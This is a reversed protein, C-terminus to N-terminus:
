LLRPNGYSTNKNKASRIAKRAARKAEKERKKASGVLRSKSIRRKNPNFKPAPKSTTTKVEPCVWVGDILECQASPRNESSSRNDNQLTSFMESRKRVDRGAKREARKAKRKKKKEQDGTKIAKM